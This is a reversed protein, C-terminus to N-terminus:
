RPVNPRLQWKIATLHAVADRLERMPPRARRRAQRYAALFTLRLRWTVTRADPFSANLRMLDRAVRDLTPPRRRVGDLDILALSSGDLAVLVNEAKLDRNSLGEDHLRSLAAALARWPAQAPQADSLRQFGDLFTTVLVSQPPRAVSRSEAFLWARASPVAAMEFRFHNRWARRARSGRWARRLRGRDDFWKIALAHGALELRWVTSERTAHIVKAGAKKLAAPLAHLGDAWLRRLGDRLATPLDAREVGRVLPGDFRAFARGRGDCRREHHRLFRQRSKEAAAALARLRARRERRQTPLAGHAVLFRMRDVARTRWAFHHYLAHLDADRAGAGARRTRGLDILWATGSPEILVNGCHLDGHAFGTRHLAGILAGLERALKRGARADSAEWTSALDRAADIWATFLVAAGDPGGEGWAIPEPVRVGAARLEIARGAERAAPRSGARRPYVKRALAGISSAVREVARPRAARGGVAPPRPAAALAVFEARPLEADTSILPLAQNVANGRFLLGGGM